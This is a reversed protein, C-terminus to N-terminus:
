DRRMRSIRDLFHDPSQKFGSRDCNSYVLLTRPFSFPSWCWERKNKDLRWAWICIFLNPDFRHHPFFLLPLFLFSSYNYSFSLSSRALLLRSFSIIKPLDCQLIHARASTILYFKKQLFTIKVHIWLRNWIKVSIWLPPRWYTQHELYLKIIM